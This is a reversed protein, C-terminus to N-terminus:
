RERSRAVGVVIRIRRTEGAALQVDRDMIDQEGLLVARVECGEPLDVVGIRVTGFLDYLTFDLDPSVPATRRVGAGEEASVVVRVGRFLAPPADVAPELRGSLTVAPSAVVVLDDVTAAVDIPVIAFHRMPRGTMTEFPTAEVFLRYRGAVVNPLTFRGDAGTLLTTTSRGASSQGVAQVMMPRLRVGHATVVMGSIRFAYVQPVRIEIGPADAGAALRVPVAEPETPASPFHTTSFSPSERDGPPGPLGRGVATVIYDGPELGYVRFRGEDDTTAAVGSPLYRDRAIRRARVVIGTVPDGFEEVVRGSIAAGRRLDVPAVELRQGGHLTFSPMAGDASEAPEGSALYGGRFTGPTVRVGYTGPPVRSFVFRGGADTSVTRNEVAGSTAILTVTALHLPAGTDAARVLGTVVGTASTRDPTDRVPQATVFASWGCLVVSAGVARVLPSPM